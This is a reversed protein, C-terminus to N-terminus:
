GHSGDRRGNRLAGMRVLAEDEEKAILTRLTGIVAATHSAAAVHSRLDTMAISVVGNRRWADLADQAARSASELEREFAAYADAAHDRANRGQTTKPHLFDDV